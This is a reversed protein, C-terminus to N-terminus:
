IMEFLDENLGDALIKKVLADEKQKDIKKGAIKSTEQIINRINTENSLDTNKIKEVLSFVDDPNINNQAILNFIKGLNM